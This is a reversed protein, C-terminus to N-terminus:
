SSRDKLINDACKMALGYAKPSENAVAFCFLFLPSNRTNYLFRPSKAVAPFIAELREIIYYSLELTNVNKIMRDNDDDLLSLQPDVMYFREFWGEDGFLSNLKLKWSEYIVGSNPLM